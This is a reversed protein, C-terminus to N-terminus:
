YPRHNAIPGWVPQSPWTKAFARVSKDPKIHIGKRTELMYLVGQACPYLTTDYLAPKYHQTSQPIYNEPYTAPDAQHYPTRMIWGDTKLWYLADGSRAWGYYTQGTFYQRVGQPNSAFRVGIANSQPYILRGHPDRQRPTLNGQEYPAATPEITFSQIKGHQDYYTLKREFHPPEDGTYRFFLAQWGDGFPSIDAYSPHTTHDASIDRLMKGTTAFLKYGNAVFAVFTEGNWSTCAAATAPSTNTFQEGTQPNWFILPAASIPIMPIDSIKMNPLYIHPPEIPQATTTISTNNNFGRGFMPRPATTLAAHTLMAPPTGDTRAKIATLYTSQITTSYYPPPTIKPKYRSYLSDSLARPPNAGSLYDNDAPAVRLRVMLSAMPRSPRHSATITINEEIKIAAHSNYAAGTPRPTTYHDTRWTWTSDHFQGAIKEGHYAAPGSTITGDSYTPLTPLNLPDRYAYPPPAPDTATTPSNTHYNTSEHIMRLWYPYLFLARKAEDLRAREWAPSYPIQNQEAYAYAMKKILDRLTKALRQARKKYPKKKVKQRTRAQVKGPANALNPSLYQALTAAHEPPVSQATLKVM